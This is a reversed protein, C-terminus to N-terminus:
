EEAVLDIATKGNKNHWESCKLVGGEGDAILYRWEYWVRQETSTRTIEVTLQSGKPLLEEELFAFYLPFWSYFDKDKNEAVISFYARGLLRCDFTGEFGHVLMEEEVRWSVAAKRSLDDAPHLPHSFEWIKQSHFPSYFQALNVTFYSQKEPLALQHYLAHTSIPRIFTSYTQPIWITKQTANRLPPLTVAPGM